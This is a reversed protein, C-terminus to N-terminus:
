LQCGAASEVHKAYVEECGAEKKGAEDERVFGFAGDRWNLERFAVYRAVHCFPAPM